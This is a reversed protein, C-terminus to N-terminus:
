LMDDKVNYQVSVLEIGYLEQVKVYRGYLM